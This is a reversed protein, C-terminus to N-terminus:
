SRTKTATFTGLQFSTGTAAAIYWIDGSLTQGQRAGRLQISANARASPFQIVLSDGRIPWWAAAQGARGRPARTYGAIAITAAFQSSSPVGPIPAALPTAELRLATGEGAAARRRQGQRPGAGQRGEINTRLLYSGAVAGPAFTTSPAPAVAPEPTPPAPSSSWHSACATLVALAGVPWAALPRGGLRAGQGAQGSARRM